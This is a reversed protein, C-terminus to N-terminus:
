ITYYIFRLWCKQIDVKACFHKIFINVYYIYIYLLYVFIVIKLSFIKGKKRFYINFISKSINIYIYFSTLFVTNRKSISIEFYLFLIDM